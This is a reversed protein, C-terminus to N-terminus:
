VVTIGLDRGLKNRESLLFEYVTLIREVYADSKNSKLLTIYQCIILHLARFKMRKFIADVDGQYEELGEKWFKDRSMIIDHRSAKQRFDTGYQRILDKYVSISGAIEKVNVTLEEKIARVRNILQQNSFNYCSNEEFSNTAVSQKLIYKFEAILANVIGNHETDTIFLRHNSDNLHVLRRFEHLYYAGNLKDSFVFINENHTNAALTWNYSGTIVKLNDIVAFKNHMLAHDAALNKIFYLSVNAASLTKLANGRRNAENDDVVIEVDILKKRLAILEAALKQNTFWAAAILVRETTQRLENAIHFEIEQFYAEM